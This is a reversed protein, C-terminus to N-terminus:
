LRFECEVKDCTQCAPVHEACRSRSLGVIASVSKQPTMLLSDALAIGAKRQSDLVSLLTKQFDIPLDGYGPSFRPRTKHGPYRQGFMSCMRDCLVEIGASGMADLILAKTPSTVSAIRRQRDCEAGLTVAFLMARDCDRLNRCLSASTVQITGLNVTDDEIAVPIETYCARGRAATLFEPVCSEALELLRPEATQIGMGMYRFVQEMPVTELSLTLPIVPYSM